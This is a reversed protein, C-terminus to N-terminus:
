IHLSLCNLQISDIFKIENLKLKLDFNALM